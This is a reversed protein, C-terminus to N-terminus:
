ANPKELPPAAAHFDQKVRPLYANLLELVREEDPSRVILGAHYDKSMRWVIEPDNYASLDPRQQRALSVLLGAYEERLPALNYRTETAVAFELAAWEAWINVGTAAEVLDAIHAGGVRASTELFMIDGGAHPRIFETHSVGDHLGFERLVRANTTLLSRSIESDRNLIRTTFIGGEHSVELPPRGYGSAVAFRIEGGFVISDVHFIDGPVFHEILYHSQLDGLRELLPWVDESHYLKRIGIAGAMSRPKVLWPAPVRNLFAALDGHHFIPSFEPVPIGGAHAKIRMALKDRFYRVQSEGIGSMRFHERLFAATEVDFDDLPVIRDFRRTRALWAVQNLVWQRNWEKNNDRTFFVEDVGEAPPWNPQGERLSESTLLVVHCGLAKAAKLFEHGKIYSALCLITM